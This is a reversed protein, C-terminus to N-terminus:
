RHKNDAFIRKTWNVLSRLKRPGWAALQGTKFAPSKYVGDLEAELLGIKKLYENREKSLERENQRATKIDTIIVGEAIFDWPASIITHLMKKEEDSFREESYLRDQQADVYIPRFADYIFLPKLESALSDYHYRFSVFMRHYYVPACWEYVDPHNKLYEGAFKYEDSICFVKRRNNISSNPNDQRYRYLNNPIFIIKDATCFTQFWFGMDQHSAGLTENHRINNQKLMDLRFLGLVNMMPVYFLSPTEAPNYIRNYELGRGSLLSKNRVKYEQRNGSIESYDAKVIDANYEEATRYLIEYANEAIFDDSELFAVYKGHAHDLGVNMTHGYGANPKHIVVIRDDKEAYEDLIASSADTSGDDVCIIEIESLTQNVASDLCEALYKEVNCVPIIVSIKPMNNM